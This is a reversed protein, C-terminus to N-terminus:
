HIKKIDELIENKMLTKRNEYELISNEKEFPIAKNINENLNVHIDRIENLISGDLTKLLKMFLEYSKEVMEKTKEKDLEEAPIDLKPNNNEVSYSLGFCKFTTPIKPPLKNKNIPPAPWTTFNM